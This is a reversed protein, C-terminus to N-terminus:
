RVLGGLQVPEVPAHGAADARRGVGLRPEGHHEVHVLREEALGHGSLHLSQADGVGGDLQDVKHEPRDVRHAALLESPAQGSRIDVDQVREGPRPGEDVPEDGLLVAVALVQDAILVQVPLERAGSYGSSRGLDVGVLDHEKVVIEGRDLDLLAVVLAAAGVLRELADHEGVRELHVGVAPLKRPRGRQPVVARPGPALVGQGDPHDHGIRRPRGTLFVRPVVVRISGM